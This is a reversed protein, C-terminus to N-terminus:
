EGLFGLGKEESSALFQVVEVFAGEVFREGDKKSLRTQSFAGQELGCEDRPQARM